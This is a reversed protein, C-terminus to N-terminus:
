RAVTSRLLRRALRPLMVWGEAGALAALLRLFVVRLTRLIHTDNVPPSKEAAIGRAPTLALDPM